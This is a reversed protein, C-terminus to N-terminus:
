CDWWGAFATRLSGVPVGSTRGIDALSMQLVEPKVPLSSGRDDHVSCGPLTQPDAVNERCNGSCDHSLYSSLEAVKSLRLHMDKRYSPFAKCYEEECDRFLLISKGGLCSHHRDVGLTGDPELPLCGALLLSIPVAYYRRREVNGRCHLYAMNEIRCAEPREDNYWVLSYYYVITLATGCPAVFFCDGFGSSDNRWM